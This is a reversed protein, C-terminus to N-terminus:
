SNPHRAEFSISPPEEIEEGVFAELEEKTLESNKDLM